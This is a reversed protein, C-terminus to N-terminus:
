CYDCFSEQGNQWDETSDTGAGWVNNTRPYHEFDPRHVCETTNVCEYSGEDNVVLPHTYAIDKYLSQFRWDLLDHAQWHNDGTASTLGVYMRGSDLKLTADLNLPTTIVPSYLDDLYVYLLGMGTGWDGEGGNKFDANQSVNMFWSTYGNAQFSPHLIDDENFNPDYRIRVTHEHDTLDPIRTTTALSSSHNATINYRWGQTLVSIHNEYFDLQDHNFYTDIEVALSNFIGEYGLGKGAAGLATPSVDQIVFALGDAGRSRCYTNVDGQRDCNLSPNSIHFTFTTDFGERVNQKRRYWISGSQRARSPTLRLSPGCPMSPLVAGKIAILEDLTLVVVEPLGGDPYPYNSGVQRRTVGDVVFNYALLRELLRACVTAGKGCSAFGLTANYGDCCTVSANCNEIHASGVVYLGYQGESGFIGTPGNSGSTSTSSSSSNLTSNANFFEFKFDYQLTATINTFPSFNSMYENVPARRGYLDTPLSASKEIVAGESLAAIAFVYETGPQLGRISTTTVNGVTVNSVRSRFQPRFWIIKYGTVIMNAFADGPAKWVLDVKWSAINTVQPAEPAPPAVRCSLYPVEQFLGPLIGNQVRVTSPGTAGSSPQMLCTISQVRGGEHATGLSIVPCDAGGILVKPSSGFNLGDITIPVLGAPPCDYTTAHELMMEHQIYSRIPLQDNVFTVINTVNYTPDLLTANPYYTNLCGRVRRVEPARVIRFYDIALGERFIPKTHRPYAEAKVSHLLELRMRVLPGRGYEHIPLYYNNFKGNNNIEFPVVSIVDDYGDMQLERIGVYPGGYNDVIFLRWYRAHGTFGTILKDEIDDPLTFSHVTEFPGLGGSVISRQLLCKKPSNVGQVPKIRLGSIFRSASLDLTIWSGVSSNSTWMSYFDGDTAFEISSNHGVSSASLAKTSLITKWNTNGYDIHDKISQQPGYRLLLNANSAEGFYSMRMVAYHRNGTQILMIPSDLIPNWGEISARLEGNELRTEMKMEESTSNAWGDFSGDNFDWSIDVEISSFGM